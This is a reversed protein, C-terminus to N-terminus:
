QLSAAWQGLDRLVPVTWHDGVINLTRAVQCEQQSRYGRTM